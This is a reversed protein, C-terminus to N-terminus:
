IQRMGSESALHRRIVSLDLFVDCLTDTETILVARPMWIRSNPAHLIASDHHHFSAAVALEGILNWGHVVGPWTGAGTGVSRGKVKLMQRKAHGLRSPQM